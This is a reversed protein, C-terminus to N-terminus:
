VAKAAKMSGLPPRPRARARTPSVGRDLRQKPKLLVCQINISQSFREDLASLLCVHPRREESEEKGQSQGQAGGSVPKSEESWGAGGRRCCSGWRGLCAAKLVVGEVRV